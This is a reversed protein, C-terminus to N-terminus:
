EDEPFLQLVSLVRCRIQELPERDTNFQLVDFTNTHAQSTSIVQNFSKRYRDLFTYIEQDTKRKVIHWSERAKIRKALIPNPADLWVVMDLFNSWERFKRGWWNRFLQNQTSEPGFELLSALMYIPGHDLLSLVCNSTTQQDLVLYWGNLFLIWSVERRNLWRSNPPQQLFIPLISLANRTLFLIDKGYRYKPKPAKVINKNSHLLAQILTTKGAGAPGIFEM